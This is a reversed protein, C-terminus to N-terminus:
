TAGTMETVISRVLDEFTPPEPVKEKAEQHEVPPLLGMVEVCKRCWDQKNRPIADNSSIARLTVAVRWFQERSQTEAGCQDCKYITTISM